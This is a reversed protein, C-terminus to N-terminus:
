AMLKSIAERFALASRTVDGVSQGPKYLSSGLGFGTAGAKWYAGMADPTIGGVPFLPVHKPLVATMAKLIAPSIMEAPFFKLGAAGLEIARFAESPTVVGPLYTMQQTAAERAVEENLNPSVILSGGAVKVAKVDQPTLVTGAGFCARDSYTRSLKDISVLADPSNLPVEILTFGAEILAKVIAISEDPQIGRLIAVLPLQAKATAFDMM